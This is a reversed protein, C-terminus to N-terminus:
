ITIKEREGKLEELKSRFIKKLVRIKSPTRPLTTAQPVVLFIEQPLYLGAQNSIHSCM